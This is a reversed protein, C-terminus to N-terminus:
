FEGDVKGLTNLVERRYDEKGITYSYHKIQLIRYKFGLNDNLIKYAKEGMAVIVPKEGLYSIEEEFDKINQKIIEPHKRLYDGM